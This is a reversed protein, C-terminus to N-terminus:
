STLLTLNQFTPIMSNCVKVLADGSSGEKPPKSVHLHLEDGKGVADLCLVYSVDALLSSDSFIMLFLLAIVIMATNILFAFQCQGLGM